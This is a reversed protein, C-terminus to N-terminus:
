QFTIFLLIIHATLYFREILDFEFQLVFAMKLSQCRNALLSRTTNQLFIRQCLHMFNPILGHMKLSLFMSIHQILFIILNNIFQQM